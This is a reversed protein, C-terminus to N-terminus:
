ERSPASAIVGMKEFAKLKEETYGLLDILIERNNQGLTPAASNVIVSSESFKVPFNVTKIKGLENHEVDIFMNRSILHPDKINEYVHYIPAVPMGFNVLYEVAEKRTMGSILKELVETTVENLNLKQKLDDLARSRIGSVQIWGDSVKLVGGVGQVGSYKEKVQWPLLGTMLYTTISQGCLATMCDAQAVDIMQGRGTKDRYRVAAIISMAAFLAPGLDGYAEANYLPPGNPDVNDGCLRLHGSMAEAISAFSAWPSYPGTQGFGSLAAYIIRPNLEKVVDYGLELREMTGPAFNQIVVDSRKVLKKFIELGGREKLNLTLDKKGLNLYHFWPCAGAVIPGQAFRDPAGWPPEIKIVEAGLDSLM